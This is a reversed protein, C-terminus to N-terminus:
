RRRDDPGAWAQELIDRPSRPDLLPRSWIRRAIERARDVNASKRPATSEAIAVGAIRAEMEVGQKLVDELTKGSRAAVRRALQETEPPLTITLFIRRPFAEAIEM